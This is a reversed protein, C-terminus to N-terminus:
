WGAAATYRERAITIVAHTGVRRRPLQGAAAPQGTM